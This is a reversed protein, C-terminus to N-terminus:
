LCNAGDKYQGLECKRVGFGGILAYTIGIIFIAGIISAFIIERSQSNYKRLCVGTASNTKTKIIHNTMFIETLINVVNLITFALMLSDITRAPEALRIQNLSKIIILPLTQGLM